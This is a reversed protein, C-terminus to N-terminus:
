KTFKHNYIIQEWCIALTMKCESQISSSLIPIWYMCLDKECKTHFFLAAQLLVIVWFQQQSWITAPVNKLMGMNPTLTPPAYRKPLPCDFASLFTQIILRTSICYIKSTNSAWASWFDRFELVLACLESTILSVPNVVRALHSSTVCMPTPMWAVLYICLLSDSDASHLFFFLIIFTLM